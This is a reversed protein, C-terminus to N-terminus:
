AEGELKKREGDAYFFDPETPIQTEKDTDLYLDGSLRLEQNSFHKNFKEFEDAIRRLERIIRKQNNITEREFMDTAM